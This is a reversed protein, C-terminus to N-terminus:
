AIFEAFEKTVEFPLTWLTHTNFTLPGQTLTSTFPYVDVMNRGHRQSPVCINVRYEGSQLEPYLRHTCIEFYFYNLAYEPIKLDSKIQAVAFARFDVGVIENKTVTFFIHNGPLNYALYYLQGTQRRDPTAFLLQQLM